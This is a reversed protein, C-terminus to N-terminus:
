KGLVTRLEIWAKENLRHTTLGAKEFQEALAADQTVGAAPGSFRKRLEALTKELFTEREAEPVRAAALLPGNPFADKENTTHGTLWARLKNYRTPRDAATSVYVVRSKKAADRLAAAADRRPRVDLRNVTWFTDIEIEALATDADVLLLASEAPWVFVRGTAESGRRRGPIGPYRILLEVPEPQAPFARGLSAFGGADTPIQQFEEPNAAQIYLGQNALNPDKEYPETPELCATLTVKEEPVALQDFLAVAVAPYEGRPWFWWLVGSVAGGILLLLLIVPWWPRRRKAASARALLVLPDPKKPEPAAM